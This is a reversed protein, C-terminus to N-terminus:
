VPNEGAPGGPLELLIVAHTVPQPCFPQEARLGVFGLKANERPTGGRFREM